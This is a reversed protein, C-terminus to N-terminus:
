RAGQGRSPARCRHARANSMSSWATWWGACCRKDLGTPHARRRGCPLSLPPWRPAGSGQRQRSTRPRRGCAASRRRRASGRTGSPRRGASSWRRPWGTTPRISPRIGGHQWTELMGHATGRSSGLRDGGHAHGSSLRGHRAVARSRPPHWPGGSRSREAPIACPRRARRVARNPRRSATGCVSLPPSTCGGSPGPCGAAVWAM